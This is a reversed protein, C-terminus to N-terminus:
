SSGNEFYLLQQFNRNLFQEYEEPVGCFIVEDSSIEHFHIKSGQEILLNYLPAVYIEGNVWDSIPLQKYLNFVELYENSSSFYYLGTSCLNSIPKKEATQKVRSDGDSFPLVFSWNDGSGRFVELYGDVNDKLLPYTFDRRITDINFITIPAESNYEELGLAVTEAQGRTEHELLVITFEKIGLVAAREEIFKSADCGERALFMFLERSFYKKFSKVAHDFLYEGHAKLMYKPKSYGAKFFRSSKGAMPFIIM